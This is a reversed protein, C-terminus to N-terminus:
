GFVDASGSCSAKTFSFRRRLSSDLKLTGTLTGTEKVNVNFDLWTEMTGLIYIVDTKLKNKWTEHSLTLKGSVSGM